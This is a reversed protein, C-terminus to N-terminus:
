CRRRYDYVPTVIPIQFFAGSNAYETWVKTVQEKSLVFKHHAFYNGCMTFYTDPFISFGKLRMTYGVLRHAM